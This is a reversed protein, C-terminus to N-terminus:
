QDCAEAPVRGCELWQATLIAFDHLNVRCDDNLDYAPSQACIEGGMVDTYVLAMDVNTLAYNYVRFDDIIGQFYRSTGRNVGVCFRDFRNNPQDGASDVLQGDAYLRTTTGDYTVGLLIWTDTEAAGFTGSAYGGTYDYDGTGSMDIQFNSVSAGDGNNFLSTSDSQDPDSTQAWFTVTFQPMETQQAFTYEIRDDVGDLVIAEGILGGGGTTYNPDGYEIGDYDGAPDNPNGDLPWHVLLRKVTLAAAQSEAQGNGTLTVICYYSGEDAITVSPITYTASDAGVPTTTDGNLGRYWQYSLGTADGTTPNVATVTLSAPDGELASVDEPQGTIFPVKEATVQLNALEMSEIGTGANLFGVMDFSTANITATTGGVVAGNITSTVLYETASNRTVTLTVDYPTGVTLRPFGDGSTVQEVLSTSSLENTKGETRAFLYSTNTESGQNCQSFYGLTELFGDDGTAQNLNNLVQLDNSDFLGFRLTGGTATADAPTVTFSLTISDGDEYLGQDAFYSWLHSSNATETSNPTGWTFSAANPDSLSPTGSGSGTYWPGDLTVTTAFVPASVFLAVILLLISIKTNM